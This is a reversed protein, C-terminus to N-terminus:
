NLNICYVFGGVCVHNNIKQFIYQEYKYLIKMTMNTDTPIMLQKEGPKKHCM